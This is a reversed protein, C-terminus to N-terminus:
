SLFFEALSFIASMIDDCVYICNCQTYKTTCKHPALKQSACTNPYNLVSCISLRFPDSLYRPIPLHCVTISEQKARDCMEM